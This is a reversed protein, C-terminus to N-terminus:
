FAASGTPKRSSTTRSQAGAASMSTSATSTLLKSPLVIQFSQALRQVVMQNYVVPATIKGRDPSMDLDACM